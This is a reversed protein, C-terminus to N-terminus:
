SKYATLACETRWEEGLRLRGVNGNVDAPLSGGPVVSWRVM